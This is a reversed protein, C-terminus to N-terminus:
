NMMGIFTDEGFEQGDTTISGSLDDGDYYVYAKNTHNLGNM